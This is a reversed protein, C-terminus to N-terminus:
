GLDNGGMDGVRMVDEWVNCTAEADEQPLKYSWLILSRDLSASLLGIENQISSNVFQVSYVKFM